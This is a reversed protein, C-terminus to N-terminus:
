IMSVDKDSNINYTFAITPISVTLRIGVGVESVLTSPQRTESVSLHSLNHLLVINEIVVADKACNDIYPEM